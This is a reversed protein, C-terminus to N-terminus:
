MRNQLSGVQKIFDNYVNDAKELLDEDLYIDEQSETHIIQGAKINNSPDGAGATGTKERLDYNPSLYDVGIYKAIKNLCQETEEIFGESTIFCFPVTPQAKLMALIDSLRNIYYLFALSSDCWESGTKEGMVVISRITARPERVMVIVLYDDLNKPDSHSHLVKDYLYETASKLENDVLLNSKIKQIFFYKKHDVHQEYYGSINVNGGIVHSLVSSRSRMHSILIIKQYSRFFRYPNLAIKIIKLLKRKIHMM